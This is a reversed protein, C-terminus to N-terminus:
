RRILDELRFGESAALDTIMKLLKAQDASDAWVVEYREVRKLRYEIMGFPDGDPWAIVKLTDTVIYRKKQQYIADINM